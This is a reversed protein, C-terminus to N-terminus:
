NWFREAAKKGLYAFSVKVIIVLLWAVSSVTFVKIYSVDLEFIFNVIWSLGLWTLSWGIFSLVFILVLGLGLVLLGSKKM